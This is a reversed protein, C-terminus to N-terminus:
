DHIYDSNAPLLKEVLTINMVQVRGTLLCSFNEIESYVSLKM